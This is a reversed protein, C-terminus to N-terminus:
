NKFFLYILKSPTVAARSVDVRRFYSFCVFNRLEKLSLNYIRMYNLYVKNFMLRLQSIESSIM